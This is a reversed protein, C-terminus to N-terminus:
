PVQTSEGPSNTGLYFAIGALAVRSHRYVSQQRMEVTKKSHGNAGGMAAAEHLLRHSLGRDNIPNGAGRSEPVTMALIVSHFHESAETM